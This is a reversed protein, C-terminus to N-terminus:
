RRRRSAKGKIQRLKEHYNKFVFRRFWNLDHKIQLFLEFGMHTKELFRGICQYYSNLISGSDLKEMFSLLTQGAQASLIKTITVPDLAYMDLERKLYVELKTACRIRVEKTTPRIYDDSSVVGDGVEADESDESEDSTGGTDRGTKSSATLNVKSTKNTKNTKNMKNTEYDSQPILKAAPSPPAHLSPPPISADQNQLAEMKRTYRRNEALAKAIRKTQKRQNDTLDDGKAISKNLARELSKQVDRQDRSAWEFKKKRKEKKLEDAEASEAIKNIQELFIDVTSNGLERKLWERSAKLHTETPTGDSNFEPIIGETNLFEGEASMNFLDRIHPNEKPTKRKKAYRKRLSEVRNHFEDGEPDLFDQFGEGRKKDVKESNKPKAQKKARREEKAKRKKETRKAKMKLKRAREKETMKGGRLRITEYKIGSPHKKRPVLPGLMRGLSREDDHTRWVLSFSAALLIITCFHHRM